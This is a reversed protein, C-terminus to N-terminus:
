RATTSHPNPRMIGVKKGTGVGVSPVAVTAPSDIPTEAGPPNVLVTTAPAGAFIATTFTNVPAASATTLNDFTSIPPVMPNLLAIDLTGQIGDRSDDILYANPFQSSSAMNTPAMQNMMTTM